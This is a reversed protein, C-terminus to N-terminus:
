RENFEPQWQQSPRSNGSQLKELVLRIKETEKYLQYTPDGGGIMKIGKYESFDVVSDVTHPRGDLDLCSIKVSFRVNFMEDGAKGSLEHFSFAFSTRQKGSGLSSIGNSLMNLKLLNDIVLREYETFENKGEPMFKFSINRAVGKGNNEVHVNMFNIAAPSSLLYIDVGPRIAEKRIEEVQKMQVIRLSWTEKALVFTLIAIALTAVASVWSSLSDASLGIEGPISTGFILGIIFILPTLLLSGM